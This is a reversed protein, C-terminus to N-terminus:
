PRCITSSRTTELSTRPSPYAVESSSSLILHHTAGCIPNIPSDDKTSFSRKDAKDEKPPEIPNDKPVQSSSGGQKQIKPPCTDDPAQGETHRKGMKNMLGCLLIKHFHTMHRKVKKRALRENRKALPIFSMKNTSSYLFIM